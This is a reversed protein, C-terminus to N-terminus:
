QAAGIRAWAAEVEAARRFHSAGRGRLEAACNKVMFDGAHITACLGGSGSSFVVRGGSHEAQLRLTREDMNVAACLYARGWWGPNAELWDVLPGDSPKPPPPFGHFHLQAACRCGTSKEANSNSATTGRM